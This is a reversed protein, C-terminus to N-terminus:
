REFVLRVLRMLMLLPVMLALCMLLVIPLLWGLAFIPEAREWVTAWCVVVAVAIVCLFPGYPIESERHVILSFAGVLLAAFPAFFFVILCPQWGLFSGIMAMLTVDGFGMAERRLVATGLVRILWVVAGSALMGVLATLLGAWAVGGVLWAAAVGCSGILGVVLIRYTSRERRLRACCLRVARLWGHRAYWTRHMLSLNWLWWCALGWALPVVHPFGDLGEPWPNPSTLRLFDTAPMASPDPLLSWPYVAAAVLGFWTGPITIADPITKEDVDILSATLLLGFLVVHCFLRVAVDANAAAPAGPGFLGNQRVEWWFLAALGIGCALEVVAPRLWFGRGHLSAERRLGLWGVIPLRDHWRRPPAEPLPASWPSIARPFWALRYVGLNVLGGLCTGLVFLGLLAPDSLVGMGNM